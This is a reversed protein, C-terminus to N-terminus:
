QKIIEVENERYVKEHTDVYGYQHSGFYDDLAYVEKVEGTKKVRITCKYNSM